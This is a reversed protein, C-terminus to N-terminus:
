RQVGNPVQNLGSIRRDGATSPCDCRAITTLAPDVQTVSRQREVRGVASPPALHLSPMDRWRTTIMRDGGSNRVSLYKCRTVLLDENPEGSGSVRRKAYLWDIM